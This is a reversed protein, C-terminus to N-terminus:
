PWQEDDGIPEAVVGDQQVRGRAHAACVERNDDWPIHLRVTAPERCGEVACPM